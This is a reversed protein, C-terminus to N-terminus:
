FIVGSRLIVNSYPTFEGTRVAFKVTKSFEKLEEHSIMLAEADPLTNAICDLMNQNHESIEEALLYGEIETEAVVADLVQKFTPVGGCLVLDVIEIGQPIPMGADGIMFTDKHGLSAICKILQANLVGQKKM